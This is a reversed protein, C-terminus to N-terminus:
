KAMHIIKEPNYSPKRGYIAMGYNIYDKGNIKDHWRKQLEKHGLYTRSISAPDEFYFKNQDYGIAIAYHGDGWARLLLIVPIKKKIYKKIKDLDMKEMVVKFGHKKAVKQMNELSTGRRTTKANRMLKEGRIDIGYYAFIAQLAQAGCDYEYTQRLNPFNKIKM